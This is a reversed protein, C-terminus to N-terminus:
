RLRSGATPESSGHSSIVKSSNSRQHYALSPQVRVAIQMEIRLQQKADRTAIDRWSQRGHGREARVRPSTYTGASVKVACAKDAIYIRTVAPPCLTFVSVRRVSEVKSASRGIFSLIHSVKLDSCSQPM